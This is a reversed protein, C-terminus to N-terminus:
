EVGAFGARALRELARRARHQPLCLTDSFAAHKAADWGELKHLDLNFLQYGRATLFEVVKETSAGAQELMVSNIEIVITPHFREIASQAGRLVALESGEADLKVADWRVLGAERFWDDLAVARVEVHEGRGLDRVTCLTGWGSEHPFSSREFALTGSHDWVAGQVAQAWGFQALNRALRRHLGPDAEFGIVHGGAGVRHAAGVAHYGIHAGVDCYVDGPELLAAFCERVHPEYVGAWMQRGIRDALDAEFRVGPWPSAVGSGGWMWGAIKGLADVVRGQGRITRGGLRIRSVSHATAEILTASM